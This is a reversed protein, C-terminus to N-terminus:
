TPQSTSRPPPIFYQMLTVDLLRVQERTAKHLQCAYNFYYEADAPNCLLANIAAGKHGQQAASSYLAFAAHRNRLHLDCRTPSAPSSLIRHTRRRLSSLAPTYMHDRPYTLRIHEALAFMAKACGHTCAFRTVLILRRYGAASVTSNWRLFSGVQAFAADALCCILRLREDLREEWYQRGESPIPVNRALDQMARFEGQTAAAFLLGLRYPGGAPGLEDAEVWLAIVEPSVRLEPSTVYWIEEAKKFLPSVHERHMVRHVSVFAAFRARM